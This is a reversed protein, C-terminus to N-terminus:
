LGVLEVLEAGTRCGTRGGPFGLEALVQFPRAGAADSLAAVGAPSDAYILLEFEPDTDLEAALARLARGDLVQNALIIRRIGFRRYLLAQHATAATFGWAGAMLQEEMILPALTTKAHPAHRFGRARLYAAVTEINQELASRRLVLVPWTFPGDFLSHRAAAFAADDQEDTVLLGTDRWSTM